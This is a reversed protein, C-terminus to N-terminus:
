IAGARRQKWRTLLSACGSHLFWAGSNVPAPEISLPGVGRERDAGATDQLWAAARVLAEDRVDQPAGPAYEEVRASVSAGLRQVRRDVNDYAFSPATTENTGLGLESRLVATAAQLEPGALPWPSLTVPLRARLVARAGGSVMAM